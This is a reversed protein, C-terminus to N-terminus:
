EGTCASCQSVCACASASMPMPNVNAYTWATRAPDAHQRHYRYSSVLGHPGPRTQFTQQRVTKLASNLSKNVDVNRTVGRLSNSRAAAEKEARSAPSSQDSSSRDISSVLGTRTLEVLARTTALSWFLQRM